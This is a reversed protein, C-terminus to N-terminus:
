DKHILLRSVFTVIKPLVKRTKKKLTIFAGMLTM